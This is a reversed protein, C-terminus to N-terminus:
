LFLKVSNSGNTSNSITQENVMSILSMMFTSLSAVTSRNVFSDIFETNNPSIFSDVLENLADYDPTVVVPDPIVYKTIGDSDDYVAVYLTIQFDHDKPGSPLQFILKGKKNIGM